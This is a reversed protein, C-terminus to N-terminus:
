DGTGTVVLVPATVQQEQAPLTAFAQLNGCRMHTPTHLQILMIVM